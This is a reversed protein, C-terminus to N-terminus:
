PFYDVKSGPMTAQKLLGFVYAAVSRFCIVEIRSDAAIIFAAPVQSLRTRRLCGVPTADVRMDAPSLKALTERILRGEGELVFCSRADSVDVVLAHEGQLAASMAAVAGPADDHPLLVLLEDPSMWCVGRESKLVAGTKPPMTLGTATVIAEEFTASALDSRVTIMGRPPAETVKVIGDFSAGGLASVPDSM